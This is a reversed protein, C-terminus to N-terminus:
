IAANSWIIGPNYEDDLTDNLLATNVTYYKKAVQIIHQRKLKDLEIVTTERTLGVVNALQQQTFPINICVHDVQTDKGYRLCLHRLMEALKTSAKTQALANCQLTGAVCDQVYQNMMYCALKVNSEIQSVFQKKDVIWLECDTHAEYYYLARKTKSYLWCIPFLGNIDIFSLSKEAGSRTVNCLKVVGQKLAFGTLPEEDQIIIIEGKAVKRTPCLALYEELINM